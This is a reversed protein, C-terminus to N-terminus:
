ERDEWNWSEVLWVRCVRGTRGVYSSERSLFFSYEGKDHLLMYFKERTGYQKLDEITFTKTSSASAGPAAPSVPVDPMKPITTLETPLYTHLPFPRALLSVSGIKYVRRQNSYYEPIFFGLIRPPRRRGTEDSQKSKQNRTGEQSTRRRRAARGPMTWDRVRCILPTTLVKLPKIVHCPLSTNYTPVKLPTYSSLTTLM